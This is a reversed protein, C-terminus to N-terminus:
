GAYIGMRALFATNLKTHKAVKCRHEGSAISLFGIKQTYMEFWEEQSIAGSSLRTWAHWRSSVEIKSGDPSSTWPIHPNLRDALRYNTESKLLAAESSKRRTIDVLAVSFGILGGYPARVAQCTHLYTIKSDNEDAGSLCIECESAIGGALTQELCGILQLRWEPLVAALFRGVFAGVKRGFMRAFTENVSVYRFELDLYALGLPTTNYAMELHAVREEAKVLHNARSDALVSAANLVEGPREAQLVFPVECAPVPHGYLWGQAASCGMRMLVEAQSQREVGKAITTLGLSQGLAIIAGVIERSDSDIELSHIFSSDIKIADFPFLKLRSLSSHGIGCADMILRMGLTKLECAIALAQEIPGAFAQETMEIELRSLPFKMPELANRILVPLAINELEFPSINIALTLKEPWDMAEGCAKRLLKELLLPLIGSAEALPIFEAPGVALDEGRGWRALIEFGSISQSRLDFLPQFVPTLEDAEVAKKLAAALVSDSFSPSLFNRRTTADRM